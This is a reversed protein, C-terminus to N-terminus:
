PLPLTGGSNLLGNGGKGRGGGRGPQGANPTGGPTTATGSGAGTGGTDLLGDGNADDDSGDPTGDVDTDPNNPDTGLRRERRDPVGDADNDRTAGGAGPGGPTPAPGTTTEPTAQEPTTASPQVTTTEEPALLERFPDKSRYAAYSNVDRNEVGPAPDSGSEGGDSQAIDSQALDAKHAVTEQDPEGMFAGALIWAIIFLALVALVPPLVRNDRVLADVLGAGLDALRHGTRRV